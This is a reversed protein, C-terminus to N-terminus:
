YFGMIGEEMSYVIQKIEQYEELGHTGLSRGSASSGRLSSITNQASAPLQFCLVNILIFLYKLKM